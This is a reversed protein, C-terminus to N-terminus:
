TEGGDRKSAITREELLKVKLIVPLEDGHEETVSALTM